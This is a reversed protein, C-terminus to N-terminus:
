NHRASCHDASMHDSQLSSKLQWFCWIGNRKTFDSRGFPWAMEISTTISTILFNLTITTITIFNMSAHFRPPRIIITIIVLLTVIIFEMFPPSSLHSLFAMRLHHHHLFFIVSIILKISINNEEPAFGRKCCTRHTTRPERQSRCQLIPLVEDDEDYADDDDDDNDIEDDDHQHLPSASLPRLLPTLRAHGWKREFAIARSETATERRDACLCSSETVTHLAM